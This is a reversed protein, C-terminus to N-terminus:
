HDDTELAASGPFYHHILSTLCVIAAAFFAVQSPYNAFFTVIAGSGLVIGVIQGAVVLVGAVVAVLMAITFVTLVLKHLGSTPPPESAPPQEAAPDSNMPHTLDEPASMPTGQEPKM